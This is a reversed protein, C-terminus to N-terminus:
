LADDGSTTIVRHIEAKYSADHEEDIIILGLNEVPAFIASRAGVVIKAKGTYNKGNLLKRPLLLASHLCCTLRWFTRTNRRNSSPNAWNRTRPLHCIKRM